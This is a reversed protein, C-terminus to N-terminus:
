DIAILGPYKDTDGISAAAQRGNWFLTNEDDEDLLVNPSKGCIICSSDNGRGIAGGASLSACIRNSEQRFRLGALKVMCDGCVPGNAREVAAM